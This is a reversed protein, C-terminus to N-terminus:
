NSIKQLSQFTHIIALWDHFHVLRFYIKSEIKGQRRLLLLWDEVADKINLLFGCQSIWKQEKRIEPDTMKEWKERMEDSSPNPCKLNLTVITNEVTKIDGKKQGEIAKTDEEIIENL